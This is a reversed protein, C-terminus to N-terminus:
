RRAAAAAAEVVRRMVDVQARLSIIYDLTERLLRVGDMEEGGPVVRQLTRTRSSRKSKPVVRRGRRGSIVHSRRLIRRSCAVTRSGEAGQGLIKEVLAGDRSVADDLVARRWRSAASNRVAAIAVDASLKISNKREFLSTNRKTNRCIRLGKIWKKLFERKISSSSSCM